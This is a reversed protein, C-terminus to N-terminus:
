ETAEPPNAKRAEVSSVLAECYAIRLEEDSMKELQGLGPSKAFWALIKVRPMDKQTEMFWEFLEFATKLKKSGGRVEGFYAPGYEKYEAIEEDSMPSNLLVSKRGGAEWVAIV